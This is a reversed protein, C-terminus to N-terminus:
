DKLKLYSSTHLDDGELAMAESEKLRAETIQIEGIKPGSLVYVQGQPGEIMGSTGFVELVDGEKLGVDQGASLTLRNGDAATIYGKWPMSCLEGGVKEGMKDATGILLQNVIEEHYGKRARINQWDSVGVELEEEFVEDFLIAGNQPDLGRLRSVLRVIPATERFGYVGRKEADCVLDLLTPELITNVGLTRGARALTLNDIQEAPLRGIEEFVSHTEKPDLIIVDECHRKMFTELNTMADVSFKQEGYGTRNVTPLFAIKKKLRGSIGVIDETIKKTQACGMALFIATLGIFVMRAHIRRM